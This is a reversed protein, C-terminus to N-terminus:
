PRPAAAGPEADRRSGEDAAPGKVGFYELLRRQHQGLGRLRIHPGEPGALDSAMLAIAFDQYHEVRSFDLVVEAGRGAARLAQRVRGAEPADFSGELRLVLEGGPVELAQVSM